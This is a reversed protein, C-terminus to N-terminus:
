RVLALSEVAGDVYSGDFILEDPDDGGVRYVSHDRTSYYLDGGLAVICVPRESTDLMAYVEDNSGSGNPETGVVKMIRGNDPYLVDGDVVAFSYAPWQLAEDMGLIPDDDTGGSEETGNVKYVFRGGDAAVHRSYYLQAGDWAASDCSPEDVGPVREDTGDTVKALM